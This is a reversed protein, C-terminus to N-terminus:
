ITPILMNALFEERPLEPSLDEIPKGFSLKPILKADDIKIFDPVGYGSKPTTGEYRSNFYMEQFQKIIGYSHNNLIFLKVPIRYHAITQLEQINIQLGGDGIICIIPRKHLAISSGIAAAMSYGMPSNGMASFLRQGKKVHFAQITWTLNAGCDTVVIAKNDLIESLTRIFVYPDVLIKREYWEPVVSPYKKAWGLTLKKWDRWNPFKVNKLEQLIVPLVDRIDACIGIDPDLGRRKYLEARDIDIVVKKAGRAFTEPKGGTIRTDLRSGISVLVDSNQVRYLPHSHHITDIGSWTTVVPVGIVQALRNFTDVADAYRIAGGAVLVPRKAKQLLAIAARVSKRIDGRTDVDPALEKMNFRKLNKPNIIARQVDMPIDLLVPGPRGGKAIAVAKELYYRVLLPDEIRVAFKTLPGVMGVIDTEQFGVQRVNRGQKSEFTNVQGTIYITPTSDFYACAIGTILNTMGPGSTAMAAGLNKTMRSYAEAAIAGAQEHQVCIYDIDKRQAISNVMHVSAGGIIQFVHHIDQDVLFSILYDSLKM